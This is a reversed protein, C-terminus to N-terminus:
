SDWGELLTRAATAGSKICAPIGIGDYAAGALTINTGRLSERAEAVRAIHGPPYQPLGGGWRHVASRVPKDLGGLALSLDRYAIEALETDPRQLVEAAGARGLSARVLVEEPPLHPWKRGFFTAAKITLGEGEPVLFGSLEPLTTRPLVLSILAVSAYGLPPVAPLLRHAKGGPVALVIGDADVESLDRVPSGLRIAVGLEGLRYAVSDVLRSLGGVVTGFVPGGGTPRMAKAVAGVLTHESQLLKHVGPMTAALSLQDAWGAYVGGLLPDVLKRVLDDGLRERVLEGVAVDTGPALVPKGADVDAGSVTAV